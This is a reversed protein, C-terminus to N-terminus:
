GESDEAAAQDACRQELQALLVPSMELLLAELGRQPAGRIGEVLCDLQSSPLPSSESFLREFTDAMADRDLSVFSTVQDLKWQDDEEALEITVTQGNFLGGVFAGEATATAGDVEVNSITVSKADEVNEIEAECSKLAAEGKRGSRQELFHPTSLESCEAPSSEVASTRITDEIRAVDDSGDGGSGGCAAFAFALLLCSPLLLHKKL